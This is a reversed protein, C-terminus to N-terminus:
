LKKCDKIVNKINWDFQELKKIATETYYLTLETVIGVIRKTLKVNMPKLNIMINEYVQGTKVMVCTQIMNLVLKQATGVKM